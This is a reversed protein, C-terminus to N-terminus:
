SSTLGEARFWDLIGSFTQRSTRYDLGLERTARSGDYRAGSRLQRLSEACIPVSTVARGLLDALPGFPRLLGPPILRVEVPRGTLDGLLGLAERVSLTFGSLVYREGTVGGAEALLHGRACDDVDVISFTTDVMVPLRGNVADLLIRGTGTSRGPGQVSSPNVAVLDMPGAEAFAAREGEVKSQEYATLFSGRHETAESGVTGPQEGLTVTSSTHVLRAVGATRAARVVNRTGEVNVAFMEDTKRSCFEVVGAVHFVSRAGEVASRVSATDLVDGPVPEAGLRRIRDATQESRALVRTPRGAAVLHRVLATGVVGTGGTVLTTM